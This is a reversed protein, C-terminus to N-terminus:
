TAVFKAFGTMLDAILKRIKDDVLNGGPHFVRTAGLPTSALVM